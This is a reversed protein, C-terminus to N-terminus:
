RIRVLLLVALVGMYERLGQFRGEPDKFLIPIFTYCVFSNSFKDIVAACIGFPSADSITIFEDHIYVNNVICHGTLSLINKNFFVPNIFLVLSIIRWM